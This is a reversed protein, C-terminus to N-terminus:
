TSLKASYKSKLIKMVADNYGSAFDIASLRLVSIKSCLQALFRISDNLGLIRESPDFLLQLPLLGPSM